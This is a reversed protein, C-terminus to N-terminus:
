RLLLGVPLYFTLYNSCLFFDLFSLASPPRLRRSIRLSVLPPSQDPAAIGAKLLKSGADVVVAEMAPPPVRPHPPPALSSAVSCTLLVPAHPKSFHLGRSLPPLTKSFKPPALSAFGTPPPRLESIESPAVAGLGLPSRTSLLIIVYEDYAREGTKWTSKHFQM